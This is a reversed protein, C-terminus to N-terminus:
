RTVMALRRIRYLALGLFLVVLAPELFDRLNAEPVMDYNPLFAQRLLEVAHFLPNWALWQRYVQPLMAVPFLVGTIFYHPLFMMRIIPKAEPSYDAIVSLVLGLGLGMAVLAGLLLMFELPAPILVHFGAWLLGIIMVVLVLSYLVVELLTRSLFVDMPKIHRYNFLGMNGEVGEMLRTAISRFMIYPVIGALLFVSFEVGPIGRGRITGFILMLLSLHAIPELFLWAAGMRHKGFRTKLERLLLAIVVAKQIQWPTRKPRSLTKLDSVSHPPM